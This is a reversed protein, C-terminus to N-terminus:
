EASTRAYYSFPDAASRAAALYEPLAELNSILTLDGAEIAPKVNEYGSLPLVLVKCGLALGEFLTTSFAGILYESRSVLDLFIPDRHSLSLNAPLPGDTAAIAEGLQQYDELAENPHLRYIVNLHAASKAVNVAARFLEAGIAGQSTFLVQNPVIRNEALAKSRYEAFPKTPGTVRTSTGKPLNVRSAPGAWYEGWTAITDAVSEIEQKRAFLGQAPYSYAPHYESIFGHQIETVSLGAKKAALVLAPESYANVIYLEKAGIAKFLKGFGLQDILARRVLYKPYKQFKELTIGFGQELEAIIASWRNEAPERSTIRLGKNVQETYEAAFAERLRALDLVSPDAAYANADFDFDIVRYTKGEAQLRTIIADSYPEGGAVRRRFPIVVADAQTLTEFDPLDPLGQELEPKSFNPHPNDFLGVEQAIAYFIRTRLLPYLQVGSFRAANAKSKKELATFKEWFQEFNM